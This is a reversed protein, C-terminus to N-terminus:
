KAKKEESARKRNLFSVREKALDSMSDFRRNGRMKLIQTEIDQFDCISFIERAAKTKQHSWRMTVRDYFVDGTKGVLHEDEGKGETLTLRIRSHTKGGYPSVWAKAAKVNLKRVNKMREPTDFTKGALYGKLLAEMVRVTAVVDQSSNHFCISNGLFLYNYVDSLKYSYIESSPIMDRAMEAVDVSPISFNYLWRLRTSMFQLMKIDFGVNYGAIVDADNMYELIEPGADSELRGYQELYEQSIGTIEVIKPRLKQHHNMYVNKEDVLAFSYDSTLVFKQASFQIIKASDSEATKGLGTTETDFVIVRKGPSLVSLLKEKTSEINRWEGTKM